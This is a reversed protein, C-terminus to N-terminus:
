GSADTAETATRLERLHAVVAAVEHDDLDNAPMMVSYGAAVDAGPDTIARTLYEDDAIVTTGDDLEVTSGYVRDFSAAAGGPGHCVTCGNSDVIEAGRSAEEGLDAPADTAGGDGCATVVCAAVICAAVVCAAVACAAVAAVARPQSTVTLARVTV